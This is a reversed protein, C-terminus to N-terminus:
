GITEEQFIFKLLKQSSSDTDSKRDWIKQLVVMILGSIVLGFISYDIPGLLRALRFNIAFGSLQFSVQGLMMLITGRAIM